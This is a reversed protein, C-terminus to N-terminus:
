RLLPSLDYAAVRNEAMHPLVLLKRDPLYAHDATGNKFTLLTRTAGNGGIQLVKGAVWDTVVFGGAGDRELGDLNGTPERTILTKAKTALDLAYLRGPVKTSFDPEPKGWAAVVLRNGDV